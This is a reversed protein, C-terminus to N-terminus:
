ELSEKLLKLAALDLRAIEDICGAIRRRKERKVFQAALEKMPTSCEGLIGWIEWCKDYIALFVRGAAIEPPEDPVPEAQGTLYFGTYARAEALCRVLYHHLLHRKRLMSESLDDALVYEKWAAYAAQGAKFGQSEKRKMVEVGHAICARLMEPTRLDPQPGPKRELFVFKWAKTWDRVVAMGNAFEECRHQKQFFDWAVLENGDDQYGCVIGCEPEEVLGFALVPMGHDISDVIRRKLAGAASPSSKRIEPVCGIGACGREITHDHTDNVRSLDLCSLSGDVDQWLIGFGMGTWALLDFYLRRQKWGDETVCCGVNLGIAKAVCTLCAPLCFDEPTNKDNEYFHCREIGSLVKSRM